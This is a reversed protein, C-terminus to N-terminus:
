TRRGGYGCTVPSARGAPGRARPPGARDDRRRPLMGAGDVAMIAGLRRLPELGLVTELPDDAAVHLLGDEDRQMLDRITQTKADAGAALAANIQKEEVLGVFRGLEDTVPFWPWRYRM